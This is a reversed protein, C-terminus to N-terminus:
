LNTGPPLNVGMQALMSAISQVTFPTQTTQDGTGDLGVVIGYGILQNARVGQISVLDKIREARASTAVTLLVAAGLVLTSLIRLFTSLSVDSRTTM